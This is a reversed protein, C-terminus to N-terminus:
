YTRPPTYLLIRFCLAFGHYALLLLTHPVKYLALPTAVFQHSCRLKNCLTVRISLWQLVDFPPCNTFPHTLWHTTPQPQHHYWTIEGEDVVEGTKLWLSLRIHVSALTCRNMHSCQMCTSVICTLNNSLTIIPCNGVLLYYLLVSLNFQASLCNRLEAILM